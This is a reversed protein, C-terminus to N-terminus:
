KKEKKETKENHKFVILGKGDDVFKDKPDYKDKGKEEKSDQDKNENM